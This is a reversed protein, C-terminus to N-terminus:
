DERVIQLRSVRSGAGQNYIQVKGQQLTPGLGEGRGCFETAYGQGKVITRFLTQGATRLLTM